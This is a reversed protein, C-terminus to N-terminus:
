KADVRPSCVCGLSSQGRGGPLLIEGPEPHLLHSIRAFGLLAPVVLPRAPPGRDAGDTGPASPSAGPHFSVLAPTKGACPRTRAEGRLLLFNSFHPFFLFLIIIIFFLSSRRDGFWIEAERAAGELCWSAARLFSSVPRQRLDFCCRARVCFFLFSLILYFYLCWRLVYFLVLGSWPDGGRGGTCVAM